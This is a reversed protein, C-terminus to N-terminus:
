SEFQTCYHTTIYFDYYNKEETEQLVVIGIWMKTIDKHVIARYHPNYSKLKENMYIDFIEKLAPIIEDTCDDDKCYYWFKWISESTTTRNIVKCNVWREQFWAEIINYDYDKDFYNRKHEMEWKEASISSWEYATNDLLASYSYPNLWIKERVENHWDLWQKRIKEIDIKYKLNNESALITFDIKKTEDVQKNIIEDTKLNEVLANLIEYKKTNKKSKNLTKELIKILTKKYWDWKKDINKQLKNNIKNILIKDKITLEYKQTDDANVKKTIQTQLLLNNWGILIILIILIIIKKM